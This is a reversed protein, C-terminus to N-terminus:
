SIRKQIYFPIGEILMNLQVLDPFTRFNKDIYFLQNNSNLIQSLYPYMDLNVVIGNYDLRAQNLEKVLNYYIDYGLTLIYKCFDFVMKHPFQYTEIVIDSLNSNTMQVFIGNDDMDKWDKHEVNVDVNDEGVVQEITQFM